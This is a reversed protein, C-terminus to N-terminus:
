VRRATLFLRGSIESGPTSLTWYGEDTQRRPKAKRLQEREIVQRQGTSAFAGLVFFLLKEVWDILEPVFISLWEFDDTEYRLYFCFVNTYNLQECSLVFFVNRVILMATNNTMVSVNQGCYEALNSCNLSIERVSLLWLSQRRFLDKLLAFRTCSCIRLPITGDRIWIIQHYKVTIRCSSFKGHGIMKNIDMWRTHYCTQRMGQSRRNSSLNCRTLAMHM